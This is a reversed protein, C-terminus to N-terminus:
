LGFIKKNYKRNFVKVSEITFNLLMKENLYKHTKSCLHHVYVDTLLCKYGKEKLQEVVENDACYFWTNERFGDIARYTKYKMIFSYGKFHIGTKLGFIPRGRLEDTIVDRPSAVEAHHHKMVNIIDDWFKPPYIVDNNSFLIYSNDALRNNVHAVGQNLAKNYNFKGGNYKIVEVNFEKELPKSREIEGSEIVVCYCDLTKITTTLLDLLEDNITLSPIIALRNLVSTM